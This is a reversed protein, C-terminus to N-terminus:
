DKPDGSVREMPVPEMKKIDEVVKLTQADPGFLRVLQDTIDVLEVSGDHHFVEWKSLVLRVAREKAIAPLKDKIKEMINGVSGTSFGQQHMVVQSNSGLQELEKVREQNGEEKAKKLETRLGNIYEMFLGSRGYAIAICRSDFTGIRIKGETVQSFVPHPALFVVIMVVVAAGFRHVKSM